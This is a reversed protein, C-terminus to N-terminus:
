QKVKNLETGSFVTLLVREYEQNQPVNGALIDKRFEIFKKNQMAEKLFKNDKQYIDCAKILLRSNEAYAKLSYNLCASMSNHDKGFVSDTIIGTIICITHINVNEFAIELDKLSSVKMYTRLMAWQSEEYAKGSAEKYLKTIYQMDKDNFAVNHEYLKLLVPKAYGYKGGARIKKCTEIFITSDGDLQHIPNAPLGLQPLHFLHLAFNPTEPNSFANLLIRDKPCGMSEVLKITTEDLTEQILPKVDDDLPPDEEKPEFGFTRPISYPQTPMNTNDDQSLAVLKECYRELKKLRDKNIDEM